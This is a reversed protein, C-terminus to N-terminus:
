KKAAPNEVPLDRKQWDEFSGDYLLVNHGLTRAAFLMATAQQGVHCYGIVTDGPKVGAATFMAEIEAPSRLTTGGAGADGKAFQDYPASVAGPIHGLKPPPGGGRMQQPPIGDYFSRNRADVVVFGPTKAHARVFEADVVVPRLKLPSLTGPKVAPIDTSLSRGNDTWGKIGGDLWTVNPLGAYDLTPVVRTSPSWYNDAPVVVIRSNDSIGLATLQERLAAAPLMELMLADTMPANPSHDMPVALAGGDYDVLRAGPIHGADYTAKRGVQLIVLDRDNLHEALWAASVLLKDRSSGNAVQASAPSSPLSALAALAAATLIRKM